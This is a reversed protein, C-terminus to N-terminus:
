MLLRMSSGTVLLDRVLIRVLVIRAPPEDAWSMSYLFNLLRFASRSRSLRAPFDEEGRARRAPGRAWVGSRSTWRAAAHPEQHLLLNGGDRIVRGPSTSILVQFARIISTIAETIREISIEYIDVEDRKILYLLLIPPGEFVDLKITNRRM